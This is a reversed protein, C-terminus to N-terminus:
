LHDVLFWAGPTMAWLNQSYKVLKPGVRALFIGLEVKEYRPKKPFWISSDQKRLGTEVTSILLSAVENLVPFAQPKSLILMDSVLDLTLIKDIRSQKKILKDIEVPM